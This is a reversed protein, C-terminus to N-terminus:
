YRSFRPQCAAKGSEPLSGRPVLQWSRLSPAVNLIHGHFADLFGDDMERLWFATLQRFPKVFQLFIFPALHLLIKRGTATGHGPIFLDLGIDRRALEGGEFFPKAHAALLSGILSSGNERKRLTRPSNRRTAPAM